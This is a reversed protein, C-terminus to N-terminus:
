CPRDADDHLTARIQRICFNVSQDFDVFTESGWLQSRIEERTVLQGAQSVLLTLLRAPQPQLRLAAGGKRLEGNKLDLQFPGFRVDQM